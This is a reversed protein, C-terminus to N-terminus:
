VVFLCSKGCGDESYHFRARLRLGEQDALFSTARREKSISCLWLIGSLPLALRCLASALVGQRM